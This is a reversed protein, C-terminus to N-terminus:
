APPTTRVTSGPTSMTTAPPPGPDIEDQSMTARRHSGAPYRAAWGMLWAVHEPSLDADGNLRRGEALARDLAWGDVAYRVLAVMIARRDSTASSIHAPQNDLDQIFKLFREAEAETPPAGAGLQVWLFSEFGYRGVDFMVEDLNIITNVGRVRLSQWQTDDAPAQSVSLRGAWVDELGAVPPEALQATVVATPGPHASAENM